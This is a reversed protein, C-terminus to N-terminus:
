GVVVLVNSFAPFIAWRVVRFTLRGAKGIDPIPAKTPGPPTLRVLTRRGVDYARPAHSASDPGQARGISRGGPVPPRAKPLHSCYKPDLFTEGM